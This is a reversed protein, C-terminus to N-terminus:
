VIGGLEKCRDLFKDVSVSLKNSDINGKIWSLDRKDPNEISRGIEIYKQCVTDLVSKKTTVIDNCKTLKDNCQLLMKQYYEAKKRMESPINEIWKEFGLHWIDSYKGGFEKIIKKDEVSVRIVVQPYEGVKKSM